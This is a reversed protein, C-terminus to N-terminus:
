GPPPCDAARLCRRRRLRADAGRSKRRRGGVAAGPRRRRAAAAPSPRVAVVSRGSRSGAASASTGSGSSDWGPAVCRGRSGSRPTTCRRRGSAAGCRGTRNSSAVACCSRRRCCTNPSRGNTTFPTPWWCVRALADFEVKDRVQALSTYSACNRRWRRGDRRDFRGGVFVDADRLEGLLTRPEDSAGTSRSVPRCRRRSVIATRSWTPDAVVVKVILETAACTTKRRVDLRSDPVADGGRRRTRRPGRGPLPRAGRRGRGRRARRRPGARGARRPPRRHDRLARKTIRQGDQWIWHTDIATVDGPAAAAVHTFMALSVDFHNNSHSGWTLGWADCLQAVRVSGAMTWFHPDALPIDVAGARIAHGLERWDTAIM